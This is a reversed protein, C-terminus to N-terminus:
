AAQKAEYVTMEGRMVKEVNPHPSEILEVDCFEGCEPVIPKLGRGENPNLEDLFKGNMCSYGINREILSTNKFGLPFDIRTKNMYGMGGKCCVCEDSLCNNNNYGLKYLHPLEIGASTLIGACNNKTKMQEILPFIANAYPYQELFRIARNVQRQEWEFGYIQNQIIGRNPYFLNPRMLEELEFRVKKKLELSCRAGDVGNIYGTKLWVDAPSNYGSSNKVHNIKKSYWNECDAKFRINDPHAAGTECYFFEVNDYMEIAFKGAVASTIGGSWWMVRIDGHLNKVVTEIFVAKNMQKNQM